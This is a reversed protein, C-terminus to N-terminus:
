GPSSSPRADRRGRRGHAHRAPRRAHLRLRARARRAPPQLRRPGAARGRGCRPRARSRARSCRPAGRRRRLQRPARRLPRGGRRRALRARAVGLAEADQDIGVVLADPGLADLLAASHGGGGLTGDVYLGAPDTCSGPSPRPCRARARPLGDRVGRGVRRGRRRPRPAPARADEALRPVPPSPPDPCSPPCRSAILPQAMVAQPSRTTLRRRATSTPRSAAGPGLDRHPRLRRHHAGQLRAPHRRVRAAAEPARRPGARRADIDDAWMNITRVFHRAEPEFMNLTQMQSEITEWRRRPLPLRLARPRAHRRLRRPRRPERVPADEGARPCAGQRRRLVRGTRQFRGRRSGKRSTTPAHDREGSKM